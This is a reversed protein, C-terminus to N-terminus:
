LFKKLIYLFAYSYSTHFSYLRTGCHRSISFQYIAPNKEHNSTPKWFSCLILFMM